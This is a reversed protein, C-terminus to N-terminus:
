EFVAVLDRHDCLPFARALVVQDSVDAHALGQANGGGGFECAVVQAVPGEIKAVHQGRGPIQEAVAAGEVPRGVAGAQPGHRRLARRYEAKAALAVQIEIGAVTVHAPGHGVLRRSDGAM